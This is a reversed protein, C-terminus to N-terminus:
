IATYHNRHVTVLPFEKVAQNADMHKEVGRMFGNETQCHHLLQPLMAIANSGPRKVRKKVPQLARPQKLGSWSARSFAPPDVPNRKGTSVRQCFRPGLNVLQVAFKM